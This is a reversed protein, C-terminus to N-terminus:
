LLEASNLSFLRIIDSITHEWGDNTIIPRTPDLSKTLYYVTETFSQQRPDYRVNSIGWSENFPAWVIISPHNYQQEVIQMWEKVFDMVAEDSFAYAASMESWVLLGRQDCFYLFRKDEVKQHLRPNKSRAAPRIPKLEQQGRSEQTKCSNQGTRGSQFPNSQEWAQNAKDNTNMTLKAFACFADAQRHTNQSV